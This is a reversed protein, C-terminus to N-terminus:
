CQKTLKEFLNIKDVNGNFTGSKAQNYSDQITMPTSTGAVVDLGDSLFNFTNERIKKNAKDTLDGFSKSDLKLEGSKILQNFLEPQNKDILTQALEKHGFQITGLILEKKQWDQM